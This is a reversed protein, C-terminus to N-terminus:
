GDVCLDPSKLIWVDVELCVMCLLITMVVPFFKKAVVLYVRRRLIDRRIQRLICNRLNNFNM